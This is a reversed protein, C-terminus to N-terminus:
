CKKYCKLQRKMSNSIKWMDKDIVSELEHKFMNVKRNTMEIDRDLGEGNYYKSDASIRTKGTFTGKINKMVKDIERKEINGTM